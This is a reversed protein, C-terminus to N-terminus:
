SVCIEARLGSDGARATVPLKILPNTGDMTIEVTSEPEAGAELTLIVTKAVRCEMSAVTHEREIKLPANAAFRFTVKSEMVEACQKVGAVNVCAQAADPLAVTHEFVPTLPDGQATNIGLFLALPQLALLFGLSKPGCMLPHTTKKLM